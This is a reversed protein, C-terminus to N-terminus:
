LQDMLLTFHAWSFYKKDKVKVELKIERKKGEEVVQIYKAQSRLKKMRVRESEGQL